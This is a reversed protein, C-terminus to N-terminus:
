AGEGSAGMESAFVALTKLVEEQDYGEPPTELLEMAEDLDDIGLDDTLFEKLQLSNRPDRTVLSAARNLAARLQGETM